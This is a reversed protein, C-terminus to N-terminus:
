AARLVMLEALAKFAIVSAIHGASFDDASHVQLTWQFVLEDLLLAALLATENIDLQASSLLRLTNKMVGIEELLSKSKREGVVAANIM